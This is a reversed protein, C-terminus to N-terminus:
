ALKLLDVKFFYGVANVIFFSLMLIIFGVVAWTLRGRATALKQKDGGSTIWQIGAWVIYIVMLFMGILMFLTLFNNLYTQLTGLGGHPFGDPVNVPQGGLNFTSAM